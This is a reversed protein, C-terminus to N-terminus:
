SWFPPIVMKRDMELIGTFLDVEKHTIQMDEVVDADTKLYMSNFIRRWWDPQLYQELDAVPGVSPSGQRMNKIKRSNSSNNKKM